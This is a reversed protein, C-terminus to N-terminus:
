DFLDDNTFPSQWAPKKKKAKEAEGTLKEINTCGEGVQGGSSVALWIKEMLRTSLYITPSLALTGIEQIAAQAPIALVRPKRIPGSL